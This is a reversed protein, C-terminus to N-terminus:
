SDLVQIKILIFNKQLSDPTNQILSKINFIMRTIFSMDLSNM